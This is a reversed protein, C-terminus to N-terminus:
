DVMCDEDLFLILSPMPSSCSDIIVKNLSGESEEHDRFVMEQRSLYLVAETITKLIERDQRVEENYRQIEDRRAKSLLSDM